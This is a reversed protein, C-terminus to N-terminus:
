FYKLILLQNEGLFVATERSDVRMTWGFYTRYFAVSTGRSCKSDINISISTLIKHKSIYLAPIGAINTILNKFERFFSENFFQCTKLINRALICERIQIIVSLKINLQEIGMERKPI